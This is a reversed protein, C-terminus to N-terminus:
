RFSENEADGSRYEGLWETLRATFARLAAEDLGRVNRATLQLRAGDPRRLNANVHGQRSRLWAVIGAIVAAGIGGPALTIAVTDAVSGLTSATEEGNLVQARGALTPDEVLWARLGLVDDENSAAGYLTVTVVEAM